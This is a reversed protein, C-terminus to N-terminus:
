AAWQYDRHYRDHSAYRWRRTFQALALLLVSDDRRFRPRENSRRLLANEAMLESRTHTLDGAAVGMLRAGSRAPRLLRRAARGLAIILAAVLNSDM